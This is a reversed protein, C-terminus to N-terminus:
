GSVPYLYVIGVPEVRVAKVEYIAEIRAPERVLEEALMNLRKDWHRRDAELQRLEEEAFLSLQLPQETEQKTKLIRDRQEELIKKMEEAEKQGRAIFLTYPIPHPTYPVGYKFAPTEFHVSYKKCM